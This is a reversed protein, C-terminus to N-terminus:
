ESDKTCRVCTGFTRGSLGTDEDSRDTWAFLQLGRPSTTSWWFGGNDVYGTIYPKEFSTWEYDIIVRGSPRGTFGSENTGHPISYELDWHLNGEEKLKKGAINVGGLTVSLTDWDEKSPIHWGAPCLMKSDIVAQNYILGYDQINMNYFYAPLQDESKSRFNDTSVTGPIQSGDKLRTARLNEAMWIQNGIKVTKYHNEQVDSVYGHFNKPLGAARYLDEKSVPSESTLLEGDVTLNGRIVANGNVDLTESPSVTGIGVNGGYPNLGLDGNLNNQLRLDGQDSDWLLYAIVTDNSTFSYQIDQDTPASIVFQGLKPVHSANIQLPTEPSNTGIGVRGDAYNIGGSAESWRSEGPEGQPGAPGVVGQEGQIGQMGIPGDPGENGSAAYLAYPVSLLPSSGMHEGNVTIDLFYPGNGWDVLSLDDSTTGEGIVLNVLGFESTTTNHIELYVLPGDTHGHIISIQIAVTETTKVTGDSNRIIAQYNFSQPAQCNSTMVLVIM